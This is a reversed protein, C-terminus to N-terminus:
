VGAALWKLFAETRSRAVTWDPAPEGAPLALLGLAPDPLVRLRGGLLRALTGVASQALICSRSIRFFQASPLRGGLTDLSQDLPYVRGDRLLVRTVNAASYCCVIQALPVSVIQGGHHVLLPETFGSGTGVEEEPALRMRADLPRSARCREVARRLDELEIPKLLYDTGGAAFAELAYSDYATTMVVHSRVAVQSFIGFSDGSSLQIDLFIIDPTHERLFAVASETSDATGVVELDPFHRELLRRLVQCAVAEDEVIFVTMM